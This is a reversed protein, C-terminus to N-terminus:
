NINITVSIGMKAFLSGKQLLLAMWVSVALVRSCHFQGVAAWGGAAGLWGDSSGTCRPGQCGRRQGMGGLPKSVRQWAKRCLVGPELSEAGTSSECAEPWPEGGGRWEPKAAPCSRVQAGGPSRGWVLGGSGTTPHLCFFDM